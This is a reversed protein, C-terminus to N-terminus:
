EEMSLSASLKYPTASMGDSRFISCCVVIKTIDAQRQRMVVSHVLLADGVDCEALVIHGLQTSQQGQRGGNASLPDGSGPQEAISSEGSATPVEGRGDLRM